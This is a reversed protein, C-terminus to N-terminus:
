SNRVIGIILLAIAGAGFIGTMAFFISAGIGASFGLVLFLIALGLLLVGSIILVYSMWSAGRLKKIKESAQLTRKKLNRKKLKSKKLKKRKTYEVPVSQDYNNSNIQKEALTSNSFILVCFILQVFLQLEKM